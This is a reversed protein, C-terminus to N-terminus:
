KTCDTIVENDPRQTSFVTPNVGSVYVEGVPWGQPPKTGAPYMAHTYDCLVYGCMICEQTNNRFPGAIHKVTSM